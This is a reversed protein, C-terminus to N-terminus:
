VLSACLMSACAAFADGCVCQAPLSAGVQEAPLEPPLAPVMAVHEPPFQPASSFLVSNELAFSHLQTTHVASPFVWAAPSALFRVHYAGSAGLVCRRAARCRRTDLPRRATTMPRCPCMGPCATFRLPLDALTTLSQPLQQNM